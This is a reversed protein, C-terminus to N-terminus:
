QQREEEVYKDTKRFLKLLFLVSCVPFFPQSVIGEESSGVQADPGRGSGAGPRTLVKARGTKYGLHHQSGFDLAAPLSSQSHFKGSVKFLRGCDGVSRGQLNKPGLQALGHFQWVLSRIPVKM